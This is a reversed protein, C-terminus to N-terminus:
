YRNNIMSFMSVWKDGFYRKNKVMRCRSDSIDKNNSSKLPTSSKMKLFMCVTIGVKILAQLRWQQDIALDFSERHRKWTAIRGDM